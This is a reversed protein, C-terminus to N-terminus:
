ADPWVTNSEFSYAPMWYPQEGKVCRIYNDKVCIPRKEIPPKSQQFLWPMKGPIQWSKSYDRMAATAMFTGINDM